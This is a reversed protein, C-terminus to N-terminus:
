GHHEALKSLAGHVFNVEADEFFHRSMRTYEDVVIKPKIEKGYFLEFVACQLIAILLPSMRERKWNGSLVGDIQTDIDDKLTEVGSLIQEALTYNPEIPQGFLLKQEQRNDALQKKLAAVAQAPTQKEGAIATTYLSQAAALRAASKKQLSINTM